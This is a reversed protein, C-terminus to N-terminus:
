LDMNNKSGIYYFIQNWGKRFCISEEEIQTNLKESNRKMHTADM